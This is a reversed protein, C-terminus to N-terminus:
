QLPKTLSMGSNKPLGPLDVLVYQFNSYPLRYIYLYIYSFQYGIGM